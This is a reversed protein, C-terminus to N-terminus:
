DMAPLSSAHATILGDCRADMMTRPEQLREPDVDDLAILSEQRAPTCLPDDLTSKAFDTSAAGMITIKPM